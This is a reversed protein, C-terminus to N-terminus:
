SEAESIPVVFEVAHIRGAVYLELPSAKELRLSEGTVRVSGRKRRVVIEEPSIASLGKHGSIVLAADGFLSIESGVIEAGKERFM